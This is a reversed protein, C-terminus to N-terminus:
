SAKRLDTWSDIRWAWNRNPDQWLRMHGDSRTTFVKRFEGSGDHGGITRESYWPVTEQSDYIKDRDSMVVFTPRIIRLLSESKGTERGHHPAVLVEVGSLDRLFENNSLLAECGETELDGTFLVKLGACDVITAISLNNEDEFDPYDNSYHRLDFGEGYDPSGSGGRGEVSKMWQQLRSIGPGAGSERNKLFALDDARVSTNTRIFRVPMQAIVNVLDSVHDDDYNSVVLEEIPVRNYALSPRWLPSNSHGCDIMFRNGNHATIVACAGHGVDHIDINM